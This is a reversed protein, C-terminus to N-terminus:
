DIEMSEGAYEESGAKGVADLLGEVRGPSVSMSENREAKSVGSGEKEGSGGDVWGYWERAVGALQETGPVRKRAQLDEFLVQSYADPVKIWGKSEVNTDNTGSPYCMQQWISRKLLAENGRHPWLPSSENLTMRQGHTASKQPTTKAPSPSTSTAPRLVSPAPTPLRTPSEGFHHPLTKALWTEKPNGNTLNEAHDGARIVKRVADLVDPTAPAPTLDKIRIFRVYYEPAMVPRVMLARDVLYPASSHGLLPKNCPLAVIIDNSANLYPGAAFIGQM